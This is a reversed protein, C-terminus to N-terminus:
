EVRPDDYLRPPRGAKPAFDDARKCAQYKASRRAIRVAHAVMAVTCSAIAASEFTEADFYDPTAVADAERRL